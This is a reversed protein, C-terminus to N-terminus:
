SAIKIHAKFQFPPFLRRFNSLFRTRWTLVQTNRPTETHKWLLQSFVDQFSDPIKLEPVPIWEVNLM